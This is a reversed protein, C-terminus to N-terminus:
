GQLGEGADRVDGASSQVPPVVPVDGVAATPDPLRIPTTVSKRRADYSFPVMSPGRSEKRKAKLATKIRTVTGRLVRETYAVLYPRRIQSLFSEFARKASGMKLMARGSLSTAYRRVDHKMIHRWSAQKREYRLCEVWWQESPVSELSWLIRKPHSGWMFLEDRQLLMKFPVEPTEMQWALVIEKWNPRYPMAYLDFLGFDVPRQENLLWHAIHRCFANWLIEAQVPDMMWGSKCFEHFFEDRAKVRESDSKLAKRYRVNHNWQRWEIVKEPDEEESPQAIRKLDAAMVRYKGGTKESVPDLVTDVAARMSPLLQLGHGIRVFAVDSQGEPWEVSIPLRWYNTSITWLERM